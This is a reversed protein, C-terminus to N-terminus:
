PSSGYTAAIRDRKAQIADQIKARRQGATLGLGHLAIDFIRVQRDSLAKSSECLSVIRELAIKSEHTM